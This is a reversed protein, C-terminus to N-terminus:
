PIKVWNKGDWEVEEGTQPNKARPRGSPASQQAADGPASGRYKRIVADQARGKAQTAYDIVQQLSKQFEEKSQAKDLAGLNTELLMLERESVQGLAGGTKSQNRMNQLVNFATQSKLTNLKAEANAAASGPINPVAGRIGTIGGLGSHTKLENAASALRDLDAELGHLQTIEGQKQQDLKAERSIQNLERQRADTMNQGRATLAETAKNHRATETARAAAEEADKKQKATLGGLQQRETLDMQASAAESQAKVLDAPRKKAKFQEEEGAFIMDQTLLGMGILPLQAKPITTQGEALKLDPVLKQAAAFIRPFQEQYQADDLQMAYGVIGSLQQGQERRLKVDEIKFQRVSKAFEMLGQATEPTVKGSLETLTKDVDGQNRGLSELVLKREGLTQELQRMQMEQARQRQLMGRIGLAQGASELPNMPQPVVPETRYFQPM